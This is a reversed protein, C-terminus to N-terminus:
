DVFALLLALKESQAKSWTQFCKACKAVVLNIECSLELVSIYKATKKVKLQILNSMLM